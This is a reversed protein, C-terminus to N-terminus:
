RVQGFLCADASCVNKWSCSMEWWRKLFTDRSEAFRVELFVFLVCLMLHNWCGATSPTIANSKDRYSSKLINQNWFTKFIWTPSPVFLLSSCKQNSSHPQFSFSNLVAFQACQPWSQFKLKEILFNPIKKLLASCSWSMIVIKRLFMQSASGEM